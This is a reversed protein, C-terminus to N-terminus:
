RTDVCEEYIFAVTLDDATPDIASSDFLRFEWAPQLMLKEINIDTASGAGIHRVGGNNEPIVAGVDVAYFVETGDGITISLQRNGVTATTILVARTLFIEWRRQSPVTFTKDSDDIVVDSQSLLCCPSGCVTTQTAADDGLWLVAIVLAAIALVTKTRTM